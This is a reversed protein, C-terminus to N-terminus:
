SCIHHAEFVEAIDVSLCMLRNAIPNPDLSPYDRIEDGASEGVAVAAVLHSDAVLGEGSVTTNALIM